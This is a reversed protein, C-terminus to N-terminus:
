AANPEDVEELAHGCWCLGDAPDPDPTHGAFDETEEADLCAICEGDPTSGSVHRYRTM